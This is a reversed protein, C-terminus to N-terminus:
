FRYAGRVGFTAPRGPAAISILKGAADGTFFNRTLDYKEDFINRGYVSVSWPGQKPSLTINFNALWYSQVDYDPGLLVQHLTDRFSYDVEASLEFPDLSWTYTASGNYSWEPLGEDQGDRNVYLGTTADLGTYRDYTAKKYEAGQTIQLQPIPRWDVDVDFGIIHSKPANVINGIPGAFTSIASQVQQNKYDYYFFAGNLRLTREILDSKFGAEYAYLTEQKIPHLQSPEVTNYASFGGSKVGRSATAYLLIREAAKYELGIKGSGETYDLASDVNTVGLNVGPGIPYLPNTTTTYDILRREEHEVRAGVIVNLKDTIQYEGQGFLAETEATQRYFSSIAFTLGATFDSDYTDRLRENSYYAGAVWHFRGASPSALRLEQSLVRAHTDFYVGAYPLATADWDEYERRHLSNYASISTLKAWGFDYSGTLQVGKDTNDRFPKANPAVGSFKTFNLSSGWGTNFPDRDAPVVGAATTLPHFLYLGQGESTDRAYHGELLFNLQPTAEWAVQGRLGYRDLDGISEGTDRNKQYAGGGEHIASVRASVTSTLPGSVFAEVKNQDYSGYEGLVGASFTSTPKNTLINIAGGTTNRGYLTGQPGRLVEVRQIDFLQGQTQVPFPLAVEDIYVGVPSSNNSAYDDFGVGRLRFQPAGGGFAPVIELGPTQYQLRSLDTVGRVQLERGSLVSLAIGVSQASQERRQATVVVESLAAAEGASAPPAPAPAQAQAPAAALALACLASGAMLRSM